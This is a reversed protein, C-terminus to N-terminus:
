RMLKHVVRQGFVALLLVYGVCCALVFLYGLFVLRYILLLPLSERRRTHSCSHHPTATRSIAPLEV